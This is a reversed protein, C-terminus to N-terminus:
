EDSQLFVPQYQLSTRGVGNLDFEGSRLSGIKVAELADASKKRFVYLNGSGRSPTKTECVWQGGNKRLLGIWDFRPSRAQLRERFRIREELTKKTLSKIDPLRELATTALARQSVTNKSDTDMWNGRFDLKSRKLIDHCNKFQSEFVPDLASLDAFIEDLFQCKMIPDYGTKKEDLVDEILRCGVEVANDTVADIKKLSDVALRFQTGELPTEPFEGSRIRLNKEESRQFSTIYKYADLGRKPEATLFFWKKSEPQVYAFVERQTMRTLFSEANKLSGKSPTATARSLKELDTAPSFLEAATEPSLRSALLQYKKWLDPAEKQLTPFDKASKAYSRSLESLSVAVSQVADVEALVERIDQTVPNSAYATEFRKLAERYANWNGVLSVLQELAKNQEVEQELTKQHAAISEAVSRGHEVLDASVNKNRLLAETAKRIDGARALRSELPEDLDRRLSQFRTSLSKLEESFRNEEERKRVAYKMDYRSKLDAFQRQDASSLALKEARRLALQIKELRDFDPQEEVDLAITAEEVSRRFDEARKADDRIKGRLREMTAAVDPDTALKPMDREITDLIGRTSEADFPSESEAQKLQTLAQHVRNAHLRQILAFSLFVGLLLSACVISLVVFRTRTGARRGLDEVTERYLEELEGPISMGAQTAKSGAVFYLRDLVDKAVGDRQLARQLEACSNEFETQLINQRRTEMLWHVAPRIASEVNPPLTLHHTEVVDRIKGHVGSAQDFDFANFYQVLKEAYNEIVAFCLSQFYAPPIPVTWDPVSIEKYLKSILPGNRSAVADRIEKDLEAIRVKEYKEVDEVWFTNGTDAQAIARLIPLRTQLSSGNLAHRRHMRYLPELPAHKLYADNLERSLDANLAPPTDFGLTSVIDIWEEREPFDLLAYLEAINPSMEALRVAEAINGKRIHPLCQQLRNNLETCAQAYDSAYQRIAQPTVTESFSIATRINEILIQPDNM